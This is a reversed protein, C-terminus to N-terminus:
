IHILSLGLQSPVARPHLSAFGGTGGQDAVPVSPLEPLEARIAALEHGVEGLRGSFARALREDWGQAWARSAGLILLALLPIWRITMM